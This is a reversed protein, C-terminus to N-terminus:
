GEIAIIQNTTFLEPNGNQLIPNGKADNMTIYPAGNQVVIGSV